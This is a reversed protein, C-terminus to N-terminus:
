KVGIIIKDLCKEILEWSQNKKDDDEGENYGGM